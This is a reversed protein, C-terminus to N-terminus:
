SIYITKPSLYQLDYSVMVTQNLFWYNSYAVSNGEEPGNSSSRDMTINDKYFAAVGSLTSGKHLSEQFRRAANFGDHWAKEDM